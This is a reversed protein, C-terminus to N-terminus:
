RSRAARAVSHLPMSHPLRTQAAGLIAESPRCSRAADVQLRARVLLESAVESKTCGESPEVRAGVTSRAGDTGASVKGQVKPGSPRHSRGGRRPSWLTFGAQSAVVPPRLTQM